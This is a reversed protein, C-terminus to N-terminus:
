CRLTMITISVRAEFYYGLMILYTWALVFHISNIVLEKRLCFVQAIKDVTDVRALQVTCHDKDLKHFSSSVM